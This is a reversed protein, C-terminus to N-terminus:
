PRCLFVSLITVSFFCVLVWWRQAACSFLFLKSSGDKWMRRLEFGRYYLLQIDRLIQVHRAHLVLVPEDRPHSLQRNKNWLLAAASSAASNPLKRSPQRIRGQLKFPPCVCTLRIRILNLPMYLVDRQIYPIQPAFLICSARARRGEDSSFM